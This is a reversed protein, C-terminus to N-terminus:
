MVRDLASALMMNPQLVASEYQLDNNTTVFGSLVFHHVLIPVLIALESLVVESSLPVRRAINGIMQTGSFGKEMQLISAPQTEGSAWREVSLTLGNHKFADFLWGIGDQHQELEQM